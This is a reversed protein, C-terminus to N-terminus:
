KNPNSVKNDYIDHINIMMVGASVMYLVRFSRNM